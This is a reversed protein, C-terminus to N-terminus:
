LPRLAQGDAVSLDIECSCVLLIFLARLHLRSQPDIIEAPLRRRLM